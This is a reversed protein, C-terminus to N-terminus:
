AIEAVGWYNYAFLKPTSPLYMADLDKLDFGTETLLKPIPRHLNCGGAFKKWLPNIRKQWKLVGADPAEGHETFILKGGPKLVRRMQELATHWDPITCLTYTLLVTDVSDDELPIEEGPLDILKVDLDSKEINPAAKDRMAESPELGWIFEVKDRDYYPLNLASGMGVELVRGECQPVVKKRQYLIPKTGCACNIFPALFYKDYLGM